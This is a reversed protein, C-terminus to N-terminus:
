RFALFKCISVSVNGFMKNNRTGTFYGLEVGNVSSCLVDYGKCPKALLYYIGKNLM